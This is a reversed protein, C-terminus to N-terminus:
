YLARLGDVDGRGLTSISNDCRDQRPYMTLYRQSDNAVHALGFIHGMEHTLTARVSYKAPYNFCSAEGPLYTWPSLSRLGIDGEVLNGNSGPGNPGIWCARGLAGSPLPNVDVTSVTDDGSDGTWLCDGTDDDMDSEHSDWGMFNFTASVGDGSTCPSDASTISTAAKWM